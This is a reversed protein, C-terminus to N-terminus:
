KGGWHNVMELVAKAILFAVMAVVSLLVNTVKAQLLRVEDLRADLERRERLTELERVQVGAQMRALAEDHDRRSVPTGIECGLTPCRGAAGRCDLHVRARCGACTELDEETGEGHCFACRLPGDSRPRIALAGNV